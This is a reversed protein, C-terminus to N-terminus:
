LENLPHIIWKNVTSFTFTIEVTHWGPDGRNPSCERHWMQWFFISFVFSNIIKILLWIITNPFGHPLFYCELQVQVNYIVAALIPAIFLIQHWAEDKIKWERLMILTISIKHILLLYEQWTSPNYFSLNCRYWDKSQWTERERKTKKKKFQFDLISYQATQEMQTHSSWSNSFMLFLKAKWKFYSICALGWFKLFVKDDYEFYYNGRYQTLM